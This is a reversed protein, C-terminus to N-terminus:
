IYLHSTKTCTKTALGSTEERKDPFPFGWQEESVYNIDQPFLHIKIPRHMNSHKSQTYTYYSEKIGMESKMALSVRLNPWESRFEIMHTHMHRDGLHRKFMLVVLLWDPLNQNGYRCLRAAEWIVCVAVGRRGLVSWLDSRLCRREPHTWNGYCCQRDGMGWWGQESRLIFLVYCLKRLVWVWIFKRLFDGIVLFDWDSFM